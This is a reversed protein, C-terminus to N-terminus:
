LRQPWLSGGLVERPCCLRLGGGPWLSAGPVGAGPLGLGLRGPEGGLGLASAEESELVAGTTGVPVSVRGAPDSAVM